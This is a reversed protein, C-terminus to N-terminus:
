LHFFPDITEHKKAFVVFEFGDKIFKTGRSRPNNQVIDEAGLYVDYWRHGEVHGINYKSIKDHGEPPAANHPHTYFEVNLNTNEGFHQPNFGSINNLVVVDTPNAVPHIQVEYKVSKAYSPRINLYRIAKFAPENFRNMEEVLNVLMDFTFTGIMEALQEIAPVQETNKLNDKCYDRITEQDVCDFTVRYLLRGPRNIMFESISNQENATVICLKKSQTLGDFFSLMGTRADKDTFVKEFEDFMFVCPQTISNLFHQFADGAFGTSIVVTPIGHSLLRQSIVRATMTKGSGKEGVLLIGTTGKRENFAACVRDALKSTSGYLRHPAGSFGVEQLFFGRDPDYQARYIGAPLEDRIDLNKSDTISFTNGRRLFYSKDTSMTNQDM